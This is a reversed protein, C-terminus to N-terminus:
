TSDYIVAGDGVASTGDVNVVFACRTLTVHEDFIAAQASVHLVVERRSDHTAGGVAVTSPLAKTM